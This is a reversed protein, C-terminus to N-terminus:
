ITPSDKVVGVLYWERGLKEFVLWLTDWGRQNPERSPEYYEVVIARPYFDLVNPITNSRKHQTNYSVRSAKLYDYEYVYKSLFERATMRMPTGAEDATLWVSRRDRVSLSRVQRRSLWKDDGDVWAYASFRVGRSPHVFDSLRRMDLNKIALLVERARPTIIDKARAAPIRYKSTDPTYQYDEDQASAVPASISLATQFIAAAVLAAAALKRM